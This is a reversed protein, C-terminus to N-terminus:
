LMDTPPYNDDEGGELLKRMQFNENILSTIDHKYNEILIRIHQLLVEEESEHKASKARTIPSDPECDLKDLIERLERLL